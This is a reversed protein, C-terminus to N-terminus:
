TFLGKRVDPPVTINVFKMFEILLMWPDSADTFDRAPLPIAWRVGYGERYIHLHPCQIEQDDPNRHPAGSFDLRALPVVGRARNQYKGKTLNIQSRWIDLMFLERKDLSQLPIRLAGGLGPYDYVTDDARHKEMALLADADAQTLSIDAM